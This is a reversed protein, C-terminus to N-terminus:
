YFGSELIKAATITSGFHRGTERDHCHHLISNMEGELVCRRIIGNACVKFLFPDEWLYHNVDSFLKKKQEYSLNSPIIELALYNAYDAYWHTNSLNLSYLYEDLFEAKISSEEDCDEEMNDLRFLHDAIM